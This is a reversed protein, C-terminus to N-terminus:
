RAGQQADLEAQHQVDYRAEPLARLRALPIPRECVECAGYTGQAFKALAREVDALQIAANDAAGDQREAEELDVSSDGEDGTLDEPAGDLGRGIRMAADEERLDALLTQRKRELRARLEALIDPTLENNM